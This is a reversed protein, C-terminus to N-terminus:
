NAPSFHADEPQESVAVAEAAACSHQAGYGHAQVCVSITCCKFVKKKKSM